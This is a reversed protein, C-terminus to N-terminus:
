DNKRNKNFGHTGYLNGYYLADTIDHIKVKTGNPLTYWEIELEIDMARIESEVEHLIGMLLTSKEGYYGNVYIATRLSSRAEKLENRYDNGDKPLDRLYKLLISM